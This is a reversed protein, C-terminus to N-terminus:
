RRPIGPGHHMKLLKWRRGQLSFERRQFRVAWTRSQDTCSGANDLKLRVGHEHLRSFTAELNNLHDDDDRGTVLIDDQIAAVNDKGQLIVDISRQLITPSAAIGFPLRKYRYLGRHTNITM